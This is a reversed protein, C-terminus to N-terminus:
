RVGMRHWQTPTDNVLIRGVKQKDLIVEVVMPQGFGGARDLPIVAEPGAEGVLALTPGMVIGGEALAISGLGVVASGAAAQIAGLGIAAAAAAGISLATAGAILSGALGQGGPVLAAATAASLMIKAITEAVILAVGIAATGIAMITALTGVMAGAVGIAGAKAIVVRAAETEGFIALRAKEMGETIVVMLQSKILYEAAMQILTNLFAQLLTIQLNQWFQSFKQGTVIWQATANTFNNSIQALAFTNGQVLAQLQREMFTPYQRALAIREAEAKRYIATIQDQTMNTASLEADLNAEIVALRKARLTNVDAFSSEAIKLDSQAISLAANRNIQVEQKANQAIQGLRNQDLVALSAALAAAQDKSAQAQAAAQERVTIIAAWSAGERYLAAIVKDSAEQQAQAIAEVSAKQRLTAGIQRDIARLAADGERLFGSAVSARDQAAALEDNAKALAEVATQQQKFAELGTQAFLKTLEIGEKFNKNLDDSLYQGLARAANAEAITKEIAQDWLAGMTTGVTDLGAFVKGLAEQRLGEFVKLVDDFDRGVAALKGFAQISKPVIVEGLHKQAKSVAVIGEVAQLSKGRAMEWAIEFSVGLQKVLELAIPTDRVIARGFEQQAGEASIYKKKLDDLAEQMEETVTVAGKIDPKPIALPANTAGTAKNIDILIQAFAAGVSKAENWKQILGTTAAIMSNLGDVVAKVLPGFAVGVQIIFGKIALQLDDFSDSTAELQKQASDELILGFERAREASRRFSASGDKLAVLMRSGAIGFLETALATKRFGDPMQQLADAIQDLVEAPKETGKISIGLAYFSSAAASSENRAEQVNRALTRFGVALQSSSLGVRNLLVSYGELQSAAIGTQVSLKGMENAYLAATRTAEVPFAALHKAADLARAAINSLVNGLATGGAILGVAAKDAEVVGKTFGSADM